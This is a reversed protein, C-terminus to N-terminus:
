GRELTTDRVDRMLSLQERLEDLVLIVETAEPINKRNHTRTKPSKM